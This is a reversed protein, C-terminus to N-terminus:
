RRALAAEIEEARNPSSEMERQLQKSSWSNVEDRTLGTAAPAVRRPTQKRVAPPQELKGRVQAYVDEWSAVTAPNQHDNEPADMAVFLIKEAQETRPCEPHLKLFAAIAKRINAGRARESADAQQYKNELSM